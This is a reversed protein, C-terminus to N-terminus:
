KAHGAADHTADWEAVESNRIRVIKHAQAGNGADIIEQRIKYGKWKPVVFAWMWYYIGCLALSHLYNACLSICYHCNFPSAVSM